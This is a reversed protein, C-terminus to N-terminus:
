KFFTFKLFDFIHGWQFHSFRDSFIYCRPASQNQQSAVESKMYECNENHVLNLNHLLLEKHNLWPRSQHVRHKSSMCNVPIRIGLKKFVIKSQDCQSKMTSGLPECKLTSFCHWYNRKTGVAKACEAQVEKEKGQLILTSHSLILFIYSLCNSCSNKWQYCM